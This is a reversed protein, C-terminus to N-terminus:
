DLRLSAALFNMSRILVSKKLFHEKKNARYKSFNSDGGHM